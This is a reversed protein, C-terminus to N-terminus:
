LPYQMQIVAGRGLAELQQRINELGVAAVSSDPQLERARLFCRRAEQWDERGAALAQDAQAYRRAEQLRIMEVLRGQGRRAHCIGVMNWSRYNLGNEGLAARFVQIAQDDWGVHYLTSGAMHM